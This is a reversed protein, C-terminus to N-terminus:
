LRWAALIPLDPMLHGRGWGDPGAVLIAGGGLMMALGDLVDDTPLAILDGIDPYQGAALPTMFSGAADALSDFGLRTLARKAGLPTAYRPLKIPPPQGYYQEWADLAMVACDATGWAFSRMSWRRVMYSGLDVKNMAREAM